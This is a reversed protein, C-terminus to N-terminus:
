RDTGHGSQGHPGGAAGAVRAPLARGRRALREQMQDRVTPDRSVRGQESTHVAPPVVTFVRMTTGAALALQIAEELAAEYEPLGDFGVDNRALALADSGEDTGDYGLVIKTSVTAYNM